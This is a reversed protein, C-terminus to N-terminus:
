EDQVVEQKTKDFTKLNLPKRHKLLWVLIEEFGLNIYSQNALSEQVLDDRLKRLEGYLEDSVNITKM